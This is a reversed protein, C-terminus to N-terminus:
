LNKNIFTNDFNSEIQKLQKMYLICVHLVSSVIQSNFLQRKLRCGPVHDAFHKVSLYPAGCYVKVRVIVDIVHHQDDCGCM